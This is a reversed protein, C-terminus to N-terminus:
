WTRRRSLAATAIDSGTSSPTARRQEVMVRATMEIPQAAAPVAAFAATFLASVGIAKLYIM